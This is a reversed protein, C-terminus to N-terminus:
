TTPNPYTYAQETGDANQIRFSINMKVKDNMMARVSCYENQSLRIAREVADKRIEEGTIRYELDITEYYKPDEERRTGSASIEFEEVKQRERELIWIVDMATCGAVAFLFLEMPTFANGMAQTSNLEVRRGSGTEATFKLSDHWRLEIKISM